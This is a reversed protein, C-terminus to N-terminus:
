PHDPLAPRHQRPARLQHLTASSAVTGVIEFGRARSFRITADFARGVSSDAQQAPLAYVERGSLSRPDSGQHRAAVDDAPRGVAYAAFPRCNARSLARSRREDYRADRPLVSHSRRASFTSSAQRTPM